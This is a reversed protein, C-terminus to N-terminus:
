ELSETDWDDPVRLGKKVMRKHNILNVKDKILIVIIVIVIVYGLFLFNMNDDFYDIHRLYLGHISIITSILLLILPKTIFVGFLFIYIFNWLVTNSLIKM